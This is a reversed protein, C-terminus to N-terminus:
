SLLSIKSIEAFLWLISMGIRAPISMIPGTLTKAPGTNDVLREFLLSEPFKSTSPDPFNDTPYWNPAFTFIELIMTFARYSPENELSSRLNM